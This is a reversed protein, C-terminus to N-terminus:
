EECVFEFSGSAQKQQTLSFFTGHGNITQADFDLDIVLDNAKPSQEGALWYVDVDNDVQAAFGGSQDQKASFHYSEDGDLTGWVNASTPLTGDDKFLFCQGTTMPLTRRWVQSGIRITNPEVAGAPEPEVAGAEPEIETSSDGGSNGGGNGGDAGAGQPAQSSQGDGQDGIFPDDPTTAAGGCGAVAMAMFMLPAILTRM